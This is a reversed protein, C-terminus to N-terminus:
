EYKINLYEATKRFINALQPDFKFREFSVELKLVHPEKMRRSAAVWDCFMEVVDILNMDAVGHEHFEPHHRNAKYHHKLAEGLRELSAKYEPSGYTLEKLMPTERDFHPKEIPGLKSADHASARELLATVMKLLMNNVQQIHELTDAKSDYETM